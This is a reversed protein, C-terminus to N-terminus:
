YRQKKDTNNEARLIIIDNDGGFFFDSNLKVTYTHAYHQVLKYVIVQYVHV